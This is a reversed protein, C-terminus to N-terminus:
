VIFSRFLCIKPTLNWTRPRRYMFEVEEGGGRGWGGGWGGGCEGLARLFCVRMGIHVLFHPPTQPPPSHYFQNGGEGEGDRESPPPPTSVPTACNVTPRRVHMRPAWSSGRRAVVNWILEIYSMQVQSCNWHNERSNTEKLLMSHWSVCAHWCRMRKRNSNPLRRTLMHGRSSLMGRDCHEYSPYAPRM